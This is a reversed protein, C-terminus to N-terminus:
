WSGVTMATYFDYNDDYLQLKRAHSRPSIGQLEFSVPQTPLPASSLRRRPPSPPPPPMVLWSPEPPLGSSNILCSSRVSSLISTVVASSTLDVRGGGLAARQAMAFSTSRVVWQQVESDSLYPFTVHVSPVFLALSSFMLSLIQTSAAATAISSPQLVYNLGLSDPSPLVQLM